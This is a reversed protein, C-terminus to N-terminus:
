QRASMCTCYVLGQTLNQDLLSDILTMALMSVNNGELRDVLAIGEEVHNMLFSTNSRRPSLLYTLIYTANVFNPDSANLLWEFVNQQPPLSM